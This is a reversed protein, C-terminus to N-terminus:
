RGSMNTIYQVLCGRGLSEVSAIFEQTFQSLLVVVDSDRRIMLPEHCIDSLFEVILVM